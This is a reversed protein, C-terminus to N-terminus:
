GIMVGTKRGELGRSQILFVQCLVALIVLWVSGDMVAGACGPSGSFGPCGSLLSLWSLWSALGWTKWAEPGGSQILFVQILGGPRWPCDHVLFGSLFAQCSRRSLVDQFYALGGM